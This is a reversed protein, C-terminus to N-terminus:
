QSYGKGTTYHEGHREGSRAETLRDLGRLGANTNELGSRRIGLETETDSGLNPPILTEIRKCKNLTISARAGAVMPIVAVAIIHRERMSEIGISEHLL